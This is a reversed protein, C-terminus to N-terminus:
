ERRFLGRYRNSLLSIPGWLRDPGQLTSSIEKSRGPISGRGDLVYGKAIGVASGRSSCPYERSCTIIAVTQAM